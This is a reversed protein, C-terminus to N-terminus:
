KANKNQTKPTDKERKIEKLIIDKTYRAYKYFIRILVNQITLGGYEARLESVNLGTEKDLKAIICKLCIINSNKSTDIM